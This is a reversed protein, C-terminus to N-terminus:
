SSGQESPITDEKAKAIGVLAPRLLREHLLYGSQMIEVISGKPFDKTEVEFMAQHLNHDFAEGKQPTIKQIGYKEFVRLLEKNTMKVGDIFGQVQNDTLTLSATLDLARELNDALPLLDRAFNNIGYRAMDEKDKHARKRINEAEALARLLQDKLHIVETELEEQRPLNKEDGNSSLTEDENLESSSQESANSGQSNIAEKKDKEHM